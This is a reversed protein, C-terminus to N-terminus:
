LAAAVVDDLSALPVDGSIHWSLRRVVRNGRLFRDARVIFADLDETAQLARWEDLEHEAVDCRREIYALYVYRTFPAVLDLHTPLFRGMRYVSTDAGPLGDDRHELVTVVTVSTGPGAVELM